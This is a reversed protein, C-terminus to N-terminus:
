EGAPPRVLGDLWGTTRAVARLYGTVVSGDGAPSIATNSARAQWVQLFPEPDFDAQSAVAAILEGPDRPPREGVLRLGARFLTLFTPFSQTLLRGLAEPDESHLLFQERLQIQRSKLEHECQLRLHKWEVHLDTFPDAGHLVRRADQIEGYEIPFVDASAQWEAESFVLPPPNGEAAWERALGTGRRLVEVDLVRLLVLLNIDSIGERYDGRAASGYLVVSALSDGYCEVLRSTFQEARRMAEMSEGPDRTNM